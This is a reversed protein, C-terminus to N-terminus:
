GGPFGAAGIQHSAMYPPEPFFTRRWDSLIASRPVLLRGSLVPRSRLQPQGSDPQAWPSMHSYVAQEQQKDKGAGKPAHVAGSFGKGAGDGPSHHDLITQGHGVTQDIYEVAGGPGWGREIETVPPNRIFDRSYILFSPERRNQGF